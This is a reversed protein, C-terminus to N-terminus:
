PSSSWTASGVSGESFYTLRTLETGDIRMVYIDDKKSDEVNATLLFYKGDPSWSVGFAYVPPDKREGIMLCKESGDFKRLVFGLCHTDSYVPNTTYVAFRGDPSWTPPGDTTWFELFQNQIVGDPNVVYNTEAWRTVREGIAILGDKRYSGWMPTTDAKTKVLFRRIETGDSKMIYVQPPTNGNNDIISKRFSVFMIKKGDPSWSPFFSDEKDFTLQTLDSGDSKIKFIQYANDKFATFVLYQGDPSWTFHRSNIPFTLPTIDTLGSGNANMTYLHNDSGWPKSSSSWLFAIKGTFPLPTPFMTATPTLTKVPTLTPLITGISALTNVPTLMPHSTGAKSSCGVLCLVGIWFCIKLMDSVHIRM